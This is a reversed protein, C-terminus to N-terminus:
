GKLERVIIELGLAWGLTELSETRLGSGAAFRCLAAQDVGSERALQYRSKESSLMARRITDAVKPQNRKSAMLSM